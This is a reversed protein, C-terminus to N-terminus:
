RAPESLKALARYAELLLPNADQLMEVEEDNDLLLGVDHAFYLEAAQQPTV